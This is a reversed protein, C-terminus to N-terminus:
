DVILSCIAAGLWVIIRGVPAAFFLKLILVVLMKTTIVSANVVTLIPSVCMLWASVYLALIVSLIFISVGIIIKADDKM